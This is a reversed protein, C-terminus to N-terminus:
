DTDGKLTMLRRFEEISVNATTPVYPMLSKSRQEKINRMKLKEELGKSRAELNIAMQKDLPKLVYDHTHDLKSRLEFFYCAYTSPKIVLDFQICHLFALEIRNLDEITSNPFIQVYDVNWVATDEWVKDALLLAGILIRRWNAPSLTLKTSNLLRDIYVAAMVGCEASLRQRDFIALLVDVIESQVPISSLDTDPDLPYEHESFIESVAHKSKLGNQQQLVIHLVVSLSQVIEKYDPARMDTHM